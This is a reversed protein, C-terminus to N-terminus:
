SRGQGLVLIELRWRSQTTQGHPLVPKEDDRLKGMDSDDRAVEIGGSFLSVM